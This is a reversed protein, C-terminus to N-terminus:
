KKIKSNTKEIHQKWIKKANLYEDTVKSVVGNKEYKKLIIAAEKRTM